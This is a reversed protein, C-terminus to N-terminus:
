PKDEECPRYVDLSIVKPPIMVLLCLREDEEAVQIGVGSKTVVTVNSTMTNSSDDSNIIASDLVNKYLSYTHLNL